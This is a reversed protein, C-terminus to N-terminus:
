SGKKRRDDAKKFPVGGSAQPLTLLRTVDDAICDSGRQPDDALPELVELAAKRRADVFEAAERVTVVGFYALFEVPNLKFYRAAAIIRDADILRNEARATDYGGRSLGIAKRMETVAPTHGLFHAVGARLKDTGDTGSDM